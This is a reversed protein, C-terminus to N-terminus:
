VEKKNVFEFREKMAKMFDSYEETGKHLEVMLSNSWVVFIHDSDLNDYDIAIIEDLNGWTKCSPFYFFAGKDM